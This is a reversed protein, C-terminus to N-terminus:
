FDDESFKSKSRYIPITLYLFFVVKGEEGIGLSSWQVYNMSM